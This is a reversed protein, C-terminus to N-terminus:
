DRGLICNPSSNLFTLTKIKFYLFFNRDLQGPCPGLSPGYHNDLSSNSTSFIISVDKNARVAVIPVAIPRSQSRKQPIIRIQTAGGSHSSYIQQNQDM